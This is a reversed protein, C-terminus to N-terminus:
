IIYNKKQNETDLTPTIRSKIIQEMALAELVCKIDRFLKPM